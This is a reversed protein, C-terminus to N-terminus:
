AAVSEKVVKKILTLLEEVKPVNQELYGASSLNYYDMYLGSSAGLDDSLILEYKEDFMVVVLWKDSNEWIDNSSSKNPKIQFYGSTKISEM